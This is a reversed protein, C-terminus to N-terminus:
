SVQQRRWAFLGFLGSGILLATSPEPATSTAIGSVWERIRPGPAVGGLVGTGLAPGNLSQYGFVPTTGVFSGTSTFAWAIQNGPALSQASASVTTGPAANASVAIGFHKAGDLNGGAGDGACNPFSCASSRIDPVNVVSGQDLFDVRLSSNAFSGITTARADDSLTFSNLSAHYNPNAIQYLYTFEGADLKPASEAPVFLPSLLGLFPDSPPLVAFNVTYFQGVSHGTFEPIPVAESTVLESLSAFVFVMVMIGARVRLCSRM